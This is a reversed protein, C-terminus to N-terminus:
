VTKYPIKMQFKVPIKLRSCLLPDTAASTVETHKVGVPHCGISRVFVKFNNQNIYLVIYNAVVWLDVPDDTGNVFVALATTKGTSAALVSTEALTTM